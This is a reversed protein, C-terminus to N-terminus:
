ASLSYGAAGSGLRATGVGTVNSGVVGVNTVLNSTSVYTASEAGDYGFAFIAKDGGYKAASLISRVQGVGTVDSAVVGSNNVLNTVSVYSGTTGYGFIAKDGGYGSAALSRRPTGVGSVDSAVVGSSNVLNSISTFAGSSPEGFAFIALGVGFEAAELEKRATGVGTVDAAIVGVNNVLNTIGTYSGPDGYGFIAKDLGYIAASLHSRATGVGSVDSAITGTNGVLNKLSVRSGSNGYAFVAKDVGYGAAALDQRATGVGTVDAAVVGSSNVLNKVNLMSGNNGYAFVARQTVPEIPTLANAIDSTPIWGKTSDAYVINIGQGETDYDVTYTDAQGQFNNGNSDITVANTDWTRAYDLLIVQDGVDPSAPLTVTCANSTTNIFYGKNGEVTVTSATVVDAWSLGGAAAAVTGSSGFVNDKVLGSM